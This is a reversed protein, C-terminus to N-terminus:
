EAFRGAFNLRVETLEEADSEVGLCRRADRLERGFRELVARELHHPVPELSKRLVARDRDGELIEV